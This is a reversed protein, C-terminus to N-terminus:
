VDVEEEDFVCDGCELGAKGLREHGGADLPGLFVDVVEVNNQLPLEAANILLALDPILTQLQRLFMRAHQPNHPQIKPLQNAPIHPLLLPPPKPPTLRHPQTHALFYRPLHTIRYMTEVM